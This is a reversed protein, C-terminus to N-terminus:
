EGAEHLAAMKEKMEDYDKQCGVIRSHGAPLKEQMIALARQFLPEAEAYKGQDRYLNALTRLTIAVGMHYKGLKDERIQLSRHLMPEAESFRRQLRYFDALNNLNIAVIPHERGVTQERISLSRLYLMEAEMCRDQKEYLVALNNMILAVIPHEKGLINERIALSHLYLPEAETYKEQKRYLVALNGLSEATDLHDRSFHKERINVARLYLSEAEALREQESCLVGLDNLVEAVDPHEKGLAKEKVEVARLYLPEAAAYQGLDKHLLALEHLATGLAADNKGEAERLELLRELWEQAQKYEAMKRSMKGAALLYDPNDEVAVAKRYQRLARAYDLRDEALKGSQFAAAAAARGADEAVADFVQEAETSDGNLLSARAKEIQMEPLCCKMQELKGHTEELLRLKEAYSKEIDALKAEVAQRKQEELFCRRHEEQLIETFKEISLSNSVVVQAAAPETPKWSLAASAAASLLAVLHQISPHSSNWTVYILATIALLFLLFILNPLRGQRETRRLLLAVVLLGLSLGGLVLPYELVQRVYDM